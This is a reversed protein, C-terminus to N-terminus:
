TGRGDRALAQRLSSRLELLLSGGLGLAALLGITVLLRPRSHREALSPPDLVLFTSVDRAENAKAGELRELSFILTAETVKRERHLRELEARLGPMALAAPFMDRSADKGRAQREEGPRATEQRAVQLDHLKEDVVALQSRLQRLTAEDRSSFTRAYELELQKAISQSNLGALVSVVARVQTDLDVIRHKEQFERVRAAADDAQKRLEAVRKELFRVEETASSVGVRRFVQNGYEAFYTLMEQVFRPERDECTLQVLIPKTLIKVDCHRWLAERAAERHKERYRSRLDFREIVADTVVNSRLVAAIRTVDASGGLSSDLGGVLESFEAGLTGSIGPRPARAPVVALDSSYWKPALLGYLAGLGACALTAVAVRKLAARPDPISYDLSPAMGPDSPLMQSHVGVALASERQGYPLAADPIWSASAAGRANPLPAGRPAPAAPKVAEGHTCVM